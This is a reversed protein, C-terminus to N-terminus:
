LKDVMDSWTKEVLGPAASPRSSPLGTLAPRTSLGALVLRSAPLEAAAGREGVGRVQGARAPGGPQSPRLAQSARVPEGAARRVRSAVDRVGRSADSGTQTRAVVVLTADVRWLRSRTAEGRAGGRASAEAARGVTEGLRGGRRTVGVSTRDAAVRDAAVVVEGVVIVLVNDGGVNAGTLGGRVAVARSTSGEASTGSASASAAEGRPTRVVVRM